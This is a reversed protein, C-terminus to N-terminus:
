AAVVIVSETRAHEGRTWMAVIVSMDRSIM